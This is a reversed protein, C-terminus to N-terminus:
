RPLAYDWTDDLTQNKLDSIRTSLHQYFSDMQGNWQGTLHEIADECFKWNRERFNKILNRHLDLYQEISFMEGLGVQDVLCFASIVNGDQYRFKDLELTIYRDEIESLNEEGLIIKM